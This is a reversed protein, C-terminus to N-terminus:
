VLCKNLLKLLTERPLCDLCVPLKKPGETAYIEDMPIRCKSCKFKAPPRPVCGSCMRVGASDKVGFLWHLIIRCKPCEFEQSDPVCDPGYKNLNEM